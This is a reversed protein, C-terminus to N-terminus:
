SKCSADAHATAVTGTIEFEHANALSPLFAVSFFFSNISTPPFKRTVNFRSLGNRTAIEACRAARDWSRRRTLGIQASCDAALVLTNGTRYM